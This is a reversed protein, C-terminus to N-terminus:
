LFFDSSGLFNDCSTFFDGNNRAIFKRINGLVNQQLIHEADRVTSLSRDTYGDIKYRSTDSSSYRNALELFDRWELVKDPCLPYAPITTSKSKRSPLIWNCSPITLNLIDEVVYM